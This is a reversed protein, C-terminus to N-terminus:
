SLTLDISRSVGDSGTVTIRLTTDNPMSLMGILQNVATAIKVDREIVVPDKFIFTSPIKKPIVGDETGISAAGADGM